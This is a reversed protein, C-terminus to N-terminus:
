NRGRRRGRGEESYFKSGGVGRNRLNYFLLFYIQKYYSDGVTNKEEMAGKHNKGINGLIIELTPCKPYLKWYSIISIPDL